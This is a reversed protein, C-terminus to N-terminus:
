AGLMLKLQIYNNIYTVNNKKRIRKKKVFDVLIINGIDLQLQIVGPILKDLVQKYVQIQYTLSITWNQYGVLEAQKDEQWIIYQGINYHEPQDDGVALLQFPSGLAVYLQSRLTDLQKILNDTQIQHTLVAEKNIYKDRCGRSALRAEWCKITETYMTIHNKDITFCCYPQLGLIISNIVVKRTSFYQSQSM